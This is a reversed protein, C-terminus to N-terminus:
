AIRRIHRRRGRPRGTRRRMFAPIELTAPNESPFVDETTAGSQPVCLVAALAREGLSPDHAIAAAVSAGEALPGRLAEEAAGIEGITPTRGLALVLVAGRSAILTDSTLLSRGLAARAARALAGQGTAEGVGLPCGGRADAFASEFGSGRAGARALVEASLAAAEDVFACAKELPTDPPVVARAGDREAVAVVDAVAGLARLAEDASSAMAPGEFSFPAVGVVALSGVHPRLARMVRPGITAAAGAALNLVLVASRAGEARERLDRAAAVSNRSGEAWVLTPVPAQGGGMPRGVVAICRLAPAERSAVLSAIRFGTGGVGIVIPADDPAGSQCGSQRM